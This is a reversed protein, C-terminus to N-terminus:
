LPEAERRKAFPIVESDVGLSGDYQMIAGLRADRADSPASFLTVLKHDFMWNHGNVMDRGRTMFKLGNDRLFKRLIVPGFLASSGRMPPHWGRGAHVEYEDPENLCLESLPSHREDVQIGRPLLAIRDISTISPSLGSHCSFVRNDILAAYPLIDFLYNCLSWIGAHGYREVSRTLLGYRQNMERFEHSGHLMYFHGPYKLKLALLYFVTECPFPGRGVYSGMFLFTTTAKPTCHDFLEFLDHLHARLDGCITIPSHLELVTPELYVVEMVKHVLLVATSEPLFTGSELTAIIDDVDFSGKM